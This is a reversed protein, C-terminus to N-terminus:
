WLHCFADQDGADYAMEFRRRDFESLSTHGYGNMCDRLLEIM